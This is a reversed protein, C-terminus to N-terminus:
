PIFMFNKRKFFWLQHRGIVKLSLGEFWKKKWEMGISGLKHLDIVYDSHFKLGGKISTYFIPYTWGHLFTFSFALRMVQDVNRETQGHLGIHRLLGSQMLFRRSVGNWLVVVILWSQFGSLTAFNVAMREGGGEAWPRGDHFLSRFFIRLLHRTFVVVSPGVKSVAIFVKKM